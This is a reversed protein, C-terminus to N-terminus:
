RCTLGVAAQPRSLLDQGGLNVPQSNPQSLPPRHRALRVRGKTELVGLSCRALCRGQPLLARSPPPFHLLNFRIHTYAFEMSLRTYTRLKTNARARADELLRNLQQQLSGLLQQEAHRGTYQIPRRSEAYPEDAADVDDCCVGAHRGGAAGGALRRLLAAGLDHPQASLIGVEVALRRTARTLVIRLPLLLQLDLNLWKSIQPAAISSCVSSLTRRALGDRVSTGYNSGATM